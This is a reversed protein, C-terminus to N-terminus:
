SRQKSALLGNAIDRDTSQDLAMHEELCCIVLLENTPSNSGFPVSTLCTAIRADTSVRCQHILHAREEDGLHQCSCIHSLAFCDDFSDNSNCIYARYNNDAIGILRSDQLM